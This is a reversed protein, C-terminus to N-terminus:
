TSQVALPPCQRTGPGFSPEVLLPFFRSTTWVPAAVQVDERKGGIELISIKPHSCDECGTESGAPSDVRVCGDDYGDRMEEEVSEWAVRAVGIEVRDAPLSEPDHPTALVRVDNDDIPTFSTPHPIEIETRSCPRPKSLRRARAPQHPSLHTDYEQRRHAQVSSSVDVTPTGKSLALSLSTPCPPPNVGDVRLQLTRVV